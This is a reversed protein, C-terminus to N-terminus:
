SVSLDPIGTASRHRTLAFRSKGRSIRTQVAISVPYTRREPPSHPLVVTYTNNPAELSGELSGELSNLTDVIRSTFDTTVRGVKTLMEVLISNLKPLANPIGITTARYDNGQLRRGVRTTFMVILM